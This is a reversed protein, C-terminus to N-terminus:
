YAINKDKLKSFDYGKLGSSELAVSENYDNLYRRPGCSHECDTLSKSRDAYPSSIGSLQLMTDFVATSSAVDKDENAKGATFLTPFGSRTKDSMWVVLPVHIQYYTPKPSAHLFRERADDFIDEGHDSVYVLGGLCDENEILSIVSDILADTAVITNDYANILTPRNKREALAVNDPRFSAHRTNYRDIYNFHSGYTHLVAMRKATNENSELWKTLEDILEADYHQNGDDRLFLTTDAEEAFFDIFSHNRGQNSFFATTYGAENYASVISKSTYISDGFNEAGLWSLLMPVSKHTTNSQSLAKSFKLLGDRRSLRPNTPRGYGFLQWNDARSTEGIILIYLEREGAPRSSAARYSFSASTEHYRETAASRKIATITNRAVNVPFIERSFKYGEIFIYCFILAIAGAGATIIGAIRARRRQGTTPFSRRVALITGWILTPIYLLFVTLMASALNSLLETAEEVNTTMVNLFMDVAIISEGYLFLLVIQFAGYFLAPFLVLVGTRGVNKWISMIIIYIGLPLLINTAKSMWSTSETFDLAVNPIILLIPYFWLFVEPGFIKKIWKM